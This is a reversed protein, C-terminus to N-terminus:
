KVHFSGMGEDNINRVVRVDIRDFGGVKAAFLRHAGDVLRSGDLEWVIPLFRWVKFDKIISSVIWEHYSSHPGDDDGWCDLHIDLWNDLEKHEVPVSVVVGDGCCDIPDELGIVARPMRRLVWLGRAEGQYGYFEKELLFGSNRVLSYLWGHSPVSVPHGLNDFGEGPYFELLYKGVKIKELMRLDLVVQEEALWFIKLLNQLYDHPSFYHMIGLCLVVDIDEFDEPDFVCFDKEQFFVTDLALKEKVSDAVEIAGAEIDQGFVREAGRVAAEVSSWGCACGVDLVKKRKFDVFNGFLNWKTEAVSVMDFYRENKIIRLIEERIFEAHKM